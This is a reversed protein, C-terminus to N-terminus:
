ADVLAVLFGKAAPRFYNRGASDKSYQQQVFSFPLLKQAAAM